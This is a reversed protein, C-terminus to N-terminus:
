NSPGKGATLTELRARATECLAHSDFFLIEGPSGTKPSTYHFVTMGLMAWSTYDFQPQPLGRLASSQSLIRFTHALSSQAIQCTNDNHMVWQDEAMAATSAFALAVATAAILILKM